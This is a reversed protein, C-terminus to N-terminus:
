EDPYYPDDTRNIEEQAKRVRNLIWWICVLLLAMAAGGALFLGLRCALDIM